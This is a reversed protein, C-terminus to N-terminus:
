VRFGENIYRIAEPSVEPSTELDALGESMNDQFADSVWVHAMICCAKRFLIVGKLLRSLSRCKVPVNSLRMFASYYIQLQTSGESMNPLKGVDGVYQHSHLVGDSSNFEVVM